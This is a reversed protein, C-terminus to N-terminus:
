RDSSSQCKPRRPFPAQGKRRAADIRHCLHRLAIKSFCNSMFCALPRRGAQGPNSRKLFLLFGQAPDILGPFLALRKLAATQKAKTFFGRAQGRSEFWSCVGTIDEGVLLLMSHSARVARRLIGQQARFGIVTKFINSPREQWHNLQFRRHLM